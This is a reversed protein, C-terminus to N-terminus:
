RTNSWNGSADIQRTPFYTQSCTGAFWLTALALFSLVLLRRM